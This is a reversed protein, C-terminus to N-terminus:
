TSGQLASVRPPRGRRRVPRVFANPDRLYRMRAAVADLLTDYTGLDVRAGRTSASAFWKKPTTAYCVGVVGTKNDARAVGTRLESFRQKAAESFKRGRMAQAHTARVDPDEFRKLAARSLAVRTDDSTQKGKHAASIRARSDATHPGRGGGAQPAVNYLTRWDRVTLQQQERALLEALSCREVVAFVLAAEGYKDFARQLPACSHEGKRLARLHERWRRAIDASSGIYAKGSPSTIAYIGAAM